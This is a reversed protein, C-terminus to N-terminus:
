TWALFQAVTGELTRGVRDLGALFAAPALPPPKAVAGERVLELEPLRATARHLLPTRATLANTAPGTRLGSGKPVDPGIRIEFPADERASSPATTASARSSAAGDVATGAAPRANRADNERDLYDDCVLGAPTGLGGSYVGF